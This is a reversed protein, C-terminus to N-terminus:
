HNFGGIPPAPNWFPIDDDNVSLQLWEYVTPSAQQIICDVPTLDWSEDYMRELYEAYMEYFASM